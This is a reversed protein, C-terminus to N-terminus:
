DELQPWIVLVAVAYWINFLVILLLAWKLGRVPHPNRAALSPIILLAYLVQLLLLKKM